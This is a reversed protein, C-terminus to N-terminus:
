ITWIAILKLMPLVTLSNIGLLSFYTLYRNLFTVISITHQIVQIIIAEIIVRLHLSIFLTFWEEKIVIPVVIIILISYEILLLAAITTAQILSHYLVFMFALVLILRLLICHLEIGYVILDVIVIVKTAFLGRWSSHSVMDWQMCWEVLHDCLCRSLLVISSVIM